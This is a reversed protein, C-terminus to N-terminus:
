AQPQEPGLSCRGVSEPRELLAVLSQHCVSRSARTHQMSDLSVLVLSGNAVATRAVLSCFCREVLEVELVLVVLNLLCYILVFISQFRLSTETLSVSSEVQRSARAVQTPHQQMRVVILHPWVGDAAWSILILVALMGGVFNQQNLSLLRDGVSLPCNLAAFYGQLSLGLPDSVPKCDLHSGIAVLWSAALQAGFISTSHVYCLSGASLILLLPRPHLRLGKPCPAMLM